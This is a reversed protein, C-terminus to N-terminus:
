WLLWSYRRGINESYHILRPALDKALYGFLKVELVEELVDFVDEERWINSLEFQIFAEENRCQSVEKGFWILESVDLDGNLILEKVFDVLNQSYCDAPIDNEGMVIANLLSFVYTDQEHIADAILKDVFLNVAKYLLANKEKFFKKAAALLGAAIAKDQDKSGDAPLNNDQIIGM